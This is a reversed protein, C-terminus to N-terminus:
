YAKTVSKLQQARSKLLNSSDVHWLVLEGEIMEKNYGKFVEEVENITVTGDMVKQVFNKSDQQAKEFVPSLFLFDGQEIKIERRKRLFVKFIKSNKLTKFPEFCKGEVEAEIVIWPADKQKKFLSSLEKIPVDLM